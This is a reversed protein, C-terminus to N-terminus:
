FGSEIMQRTMPELESFIMDLRIVVPNSTKAFAVFEGIATYDVNLSTLACTAIKSLNKNEDSKYRFEIDFEAPTILLSGGAAAELSPHMQKKFEMIIDEVQKSEQESRPVFLFSMEHSRAKMNKFLMEQRPNTIRNALKSVIQKVNIGKTASELTDGLSKNLSSAAGVAVGRALDVAIPAGQFLINNKSPVVDGRSLADTILAGIPGVEDTMQWEAGYNARIQIPMPLAIALSIRKRATMMGSMSVIKDAVYGVGSKLKEKAADMLNLMISDDTTQSEGTVNGVSGQATTKISPNSSNIANELVSSMSVNSSRDLMVNSANGYQTLDANLVSNFYFMTYHPYRESGLNSPYGISEYSIYSPGNKKGNLVKHNINRTTTNYAM